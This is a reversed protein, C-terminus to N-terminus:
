QIGEITEKIVNVEGESLYGKAILLGLGLYILMKIIIPVLSKVDVEGEETDNVKNLLNGALSGLGFPLMEMGISLLPSAAIKKFIKKGKGM